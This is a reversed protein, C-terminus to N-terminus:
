LLHFRRHHGRGEEDRQLALWFKIANPTVGDLGGSDCGTIKIAM